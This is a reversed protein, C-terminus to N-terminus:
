DIKEVHITKKLSLYALGGGGICAVSGIITFITSMAREQYVAYLIIVLSVFVIGVLFSAIYAIFHSTIVGERLARRLYV